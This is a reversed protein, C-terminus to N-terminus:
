KTGLTRILEQIDKADFHYKTNCYHCEPTIGDIMHTLEEKGLLLLARKFVDKSCTCNYQLKTVKTISWDIGKLVFRHLIDEISMEMDMLDSINPTQLLNSSLIDAIHEDAFPMQQIMIGGASRITADKDILVGLNIATPLQESKLYYEALDEAVEGSVLETMGTYPKKLGSQRMVTLHGSGIHKGVLFNDTPNTLILKPNYSYARLDGEKNALAMGGQLVGNGLIRLSLEAGPAKLEGSMLAAATIMRGILITSIPSLDHIDRAKQVVDTNDTAFVRFQNHNAVCRYLSSTNKSMLCGILM